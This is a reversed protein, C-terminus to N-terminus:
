PLISIIDPYRPNPNKKIYDIIKDCDAENNIYLYTIESLTLDNFKQGSYQSSVSDLIKELYEWKEQSIGKDSIPTNLKSSLRTIIDM